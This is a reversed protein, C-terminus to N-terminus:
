RLKAPCDNRGLLRPRVQGKSKEVFFARIELEAKFPSSEYMDLLAAGRKADAEKGASMFQVLTHIAGALARDEDSEGLALALISLFSLLLLLWKASSCKM